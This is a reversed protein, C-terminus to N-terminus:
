VRLFLTEEIFPLDSSLIKMYSAAVGALGELFTVNKLSGNHVPFSYGLTNVKELPERKRLELTEKIWSLAMNLFFKNGTLDFINKYLFAIGCTGHCFGVDKGFLQYELEMKRESVVILKEIIIKKLDVDNLFDAVILMTHFIGLDGYCWGLRSNEPAHISKDFEEVLHSYPYFSYVGNDLHHSNNLYFNVVGKLLKESINKEVNFKLCKLLFYMISANGHALGFDYIEKKLHNTSSQKWYVQAGKIIASSNLVKLIKSLQDINNTKLYYLGIGIAGHFTDFNENKLEVDILETLAEDIEIVVYSIDDIFKNFELSFSDKYLRINILLFGMGAIGGCYSGTFFEKEELFDVLKVIYKKIIDEDIIEPFILFCDVFVMIISSLGSLLSIENVNRDKKVEEWDQLYQIIEILEEKIDKAFDM